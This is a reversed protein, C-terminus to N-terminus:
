SSDPKYLPSAIIKESFKDCSKVLKYFDFRITKKNTKKKEFFLDYASFLGVWWQNIQLIKDFIFM